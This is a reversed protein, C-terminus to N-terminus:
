RIVMSRHTRLTVTRLGPEIPAGSDLARRIARRKERLEASAEQAKLALMREEILDAQTITLTIGSNSAPFMVVKSKVERRTRMEACAGRPRAPVRLAYSMGKSGIFKQKRRSVIGLLKGESM